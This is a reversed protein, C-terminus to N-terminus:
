GKISRPDDGYTRSDRIRGDRGKIHLEATQGLDRLRTRALTVVLAIDDRQTDCYSLADGNRKVRWARCGERIETQASPGVEYRDRKM